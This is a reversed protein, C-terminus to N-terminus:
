NSTTPNSVHTIEPKDPETHRQTTTKGELRQELPWGNTRGILHKKPTTDDEVSDILQQSRTLSKLLDQAKFWENIVQM